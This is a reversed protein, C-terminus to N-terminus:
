SSKHDGSSAAVIGVDEHQQGPIFTSMHWGNHWLLVICPCVEVHGQCM